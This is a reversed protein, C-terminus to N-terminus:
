NALLYELYNPLTYNVGEYIEKKLIDHRCDGWLLKIRDFLGEAVNIRILDDMGYYQLYIYEGENVCCCLSRATDSSIVKGNRNWMENLDMYTILSNSEVEFVYVKLNESDVIYISNHISLSVYTAGRKGERLRMMKIASSENGDWKWINGDERDILWFSEKIYFVDQWGQGGCDVTYIKYMRSDLDFELISNNHCNVIYAKNDIMAYSGRYWLSENKKGSIGCRIDYKQIRKNGMLSFESIVPKIANLLLINDKVSIGDYYVGSDSDEILLTRRKEIDYCIISEEINDALIILKNECKIIKRVAWINSKNIEGIETLITSQGSVLDIECLLNSRIPIVWARTGEICLGLFYM